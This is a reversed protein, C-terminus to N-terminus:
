LSQALSPSTIWGPGILILGPVKTPIVSFCVSKERILNWLWHSIPCHCSPDMKAVAYFPRGLCSVMMTAFLLLLWLFFCLNRNHADPDLWVQLWQVQPSELETLLNEKKSSGTHLPNRVSESLIRVESTVWRFWVSGFQSESDLQNCLLHHRMSEGQMPIRPPKKPQFLLSSYPGLM